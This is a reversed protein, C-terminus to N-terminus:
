ALSPVIGQNFSRNEVQSKGALVEIIFGTQMVVVEPIIRDIHHSIRLTPKPDYSTM